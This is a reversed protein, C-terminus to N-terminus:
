MCKSNYFILCSCNKTMMTEGVTLLRHCVPCDNHYFHLLLLNTAFEPDQSFSSQRKSKWGWDGGESEKVNGEGQVKGKGLFTPLFYSAFLLSHNQSKPLSSLPFPVPLPAPLFIPLLVPLSSPLPLFSPSSPFPFLFPPFTLFYM